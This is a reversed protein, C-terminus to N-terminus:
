CTHVCAHTKQAMKALELISGVCRSLAPSLSAGRKNQISYRLFASIFAAAPQASQEGNRSSAKPCSLYVFTHVLMAHRRGEEEAEEGGGGMRQGPATEGPHM